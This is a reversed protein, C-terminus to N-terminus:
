LNHLIFRKLKKVKLPLNHTGDNTPATFELNAGGEILSRSAYLKIQNSTSLVEVYYSGEPVGVLTDAGAKYFVEDGTIFPVNSAFSIISYKLTTNDFDQLASGSANPLTSSLTDETIEYSPLSNSAVYAFDDDVYVNQVDSTIINDGYFLAAGSSTATELKRRITYNIGATVTFGTLNDLTVQKSTSNVNSVTANSHLVTETSGSLIDVTDGVKLSSKDIDSKLQFTSGSISGVDFRCSTNYTWSNAFIQEDTKNFEPNKIKKGINKVFMKQGETSLLIDSIEDFESLVGGIRIKVPKTLDGDEYGVYYEDIRLETATPIATEVGTCGLFQNVTKDTYDITNSGAIVTGTQGFGITTDVTIVSAGVSVPNIVKSSAQVEFTGEILDRDDFGVFLQLKYYTSIGSRTFIEVESVAANTDPDSSKVITQGVLKNPDGSIREVVVDERRTYTATSPKILYDELDIVKPDVGYLVKFLIKFSDETGKSEYLSRIEKIFNNVDLDDVFDVDELGPAFSYKLKKYFEKLFLSSLNQVLAGNDHSAQNTDEFILEEPNLSSHYSTIGSFGRVCGTFSNTTIGTYTIIEDNIKFLGYENPFGKTSAVEVTDATSSIGATLSTYGTVVEPTLNDLKLYQDLNEVIDTPGSQYEQSVYYQKFFDISKPSEARLFEPLQNAIVQQIKVRREFGTQIM